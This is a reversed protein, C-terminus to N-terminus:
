FRTPVVANLKGLILYCDHLKIKSTEDEAVSPVLGHKNCALYLTELSTTQPDRYSGLQFPRGKVDSVTANIQHQLERMSNLTPHQSVFEASSFNLSVVKLELGLDFWDKTFSKFEENLKELDDPM